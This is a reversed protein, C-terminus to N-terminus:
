TPVPAPTNLLVSPPAVQAAALEPSVPVSMVSTAIVDPFEFVKYATVEM